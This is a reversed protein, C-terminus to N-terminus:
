TAYDCLRADSNFNRNFSDCAVQLSNYQKPHEGKMGNKMNLLKFSGNTLINFKM